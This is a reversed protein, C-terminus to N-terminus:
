RKRLTWPMKYVKASFVWTLVFCIFYSVTTAQAAGISGNIKIFLYTTIFNIIATLFTIWALVHTKQVYFIYNTVMYYMGTFAAGLAIWLVFTSATVFSKGLFFNLFWPAFLSLLVALVIIAVYYFYTLKVIKIKVVMNDRKLQAFLWPIYASNFSTALLGIISGIQVGVTYIGTSAIGVMNTILLRGVMTMALGGFAHPILPLGFKLANYVYKKNFSLKIYNNNFLITLSLIAFFSTSIVQANIRGVWNMKLYVIFFISLGLNSLTQFTQFLGYKIPKVQVQWLVLMVSNIFQAVSSIVVAWLWNVPVSTYRSILEPFLFFLLAVIITSGVLIYLCNGVYASFDISEREYYQRAIAGNVSLGIFVSTIGMLMTFMAVIGYDEPTLYRTLVPLLLFPIASNLINAGTYVGASRFLSSKLVTDILVLSDEFVLVKLKKIKKIM